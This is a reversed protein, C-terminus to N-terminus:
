QLSPQIAVTTASAILSEGFLLFGSLFCIIGAIESTEQMLNVVKLALWGNYDNLYLQETTQRFLSGDKPTEFYTGMVETVPNSM